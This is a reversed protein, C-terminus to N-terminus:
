QKTIFPNLNPPSYSAPKMVKGDERKIVKGTTVDVKSMNSRIVEDWAGQADVGASHLAGVTVVLIDILADLQEVVDNNEIADALENVEETILNIYLNYQEANYKDVSQDSAVMFREQDKFINSM